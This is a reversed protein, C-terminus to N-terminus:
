SRDWATVPRRRKPRTRRPAPALRRVAAETQEAITDWSRRANPLHDFLLPRGIRLELKFPRPLSSGPPMADFGGEIHCPVVPVPSDAVLLGLGPLFRRMVGNRTRTGEPYLIYICRTAALRDRLEGMAHRGCYDRRVPLANMIRAALASVVHQHFFTDDAALPLTRERLEVPLSAALALTDLHSTHNSVLVFPPEAPLNERGEVHLRHWLALYGRLV